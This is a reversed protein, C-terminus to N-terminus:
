FLRWRRLHWPMGKEMPDETTVLRVADERTLSFPSGGNNVLDERAKELSTTWYVEGPYNCDGFFEADDPLAGIEAHNAQLALVIRKSDTRKPYDEM